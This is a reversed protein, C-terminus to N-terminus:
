PPRIPVVSARAVHRRPVADDAGDAAFAEIVHDNEVLGGQVAVHLGEQSIIVFGPRMERQGLVRGFRPRHVRRLVSAHNGYPLNAAKVM